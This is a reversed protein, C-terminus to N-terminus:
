ENQGAVRAHVLVSARARKSTRVLENAGRANTHPNCGSCSQGGGARGVGVLVVKINYVTSRYRSM